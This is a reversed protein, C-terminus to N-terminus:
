AEQVAPTATMKRWREKTSELFAHLNRYLFFMTTIYPTAITQSPSSLALEERTTRKADVRHLSAPERM